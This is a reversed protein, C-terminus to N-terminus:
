SLQYIRRANGALVRQKDRESIDLSLIQELEPQFMFRPGDSGFMFRDLGVDLMLRVADDVHAARPGDRVEMGEQQFSGATDFVLNGYRKALMVRQDWFASAFHAMVLTLRPFEELVDVFQIPEGYYVGTESFGLTGTDSVIPLGLEECVRYMPWFAADNPYEYYLGPLLKVIKAGEEARLRVEEVMEESSFLKQVSIAPVLRSNQRALECIWRNHRRVREKLEQEIEELSSELDEGVLDAPLQARQAARMQRTPFNPLCVIKAIGEWDMFSMVSEPNAWRDRDRRGPHVVNQKELSLNRYLHVHADIIEFDNGM